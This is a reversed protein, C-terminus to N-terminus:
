KKLQESSVFNCYCSFICVKAIQHVDFDTFYRSNMLFCDRSHYLITFCKIQIVKIFENMLKDFYIRMEIKYVASKQM